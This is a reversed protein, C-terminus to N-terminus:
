SVVLVLLAKAVGRGWTGSEVEVNANFSGSQKPTGSIVGTSKGLKLGKPLRVGTVKWTYPATGGVATLNATYAQGVAGEPLTTTTIALSSEVLTLNSANAIYSGVATCSANETMCAVGFLLESAHTSEQRAQAVSWSSGNWTEILNQNVLKKSVNEYVGAATCASPGTCSVAELGSRSNGVNPSSVVAWSAGDWQEVLTAGVSGNFYAGVATCNTASTCSVGNLGILEQSPNPSDSIEFGSGNWTDVLTGSQSGLSYSGVAVCYMSNTCSVGNLGNNDGAQDGSPVISWSTGNWMEALTSGVESSSYSTGVAACGTLSGCSVGTLVDNIGSLNASPVVSWSIGNWSETLTQELSGGVYSGAAMCNNPGTCSIAVLSNETGPDPSAIISWATGNWSETLTQWDAGDSAPSYYGVAMCSTSSTCSVARLDSGVPPETNPPNPSSVLTWPTTIPAAGAIGSSELIATPVAACCAIAISAILLMRFRGRTRNIKSLPAPSPLGNVSSKMTGVGPTQTLQAAVVLPEAM